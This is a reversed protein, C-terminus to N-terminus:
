GSLPSHGFDVWALKELLLVNSYCLLRKHFVEKADPTRTVESGDERFHREVYETQLLARINFDFSFVFM